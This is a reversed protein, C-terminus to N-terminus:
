KKLIAEAVCLDYNNDIDISREIPMKYFSLSKDDIFRMTKRFNTTNCIYIAGNITFYKDEYSQRPLINSKYQKLYKWKGKKQIELCKYPHDKMKNVSILSLTESRYFKDIANDIDLSLRLPSTPQLLIFDDFKKINKEVWDLCHMITDAMSTSDKALEKPRKYNSDLGLRSAEKSIEPDETSVIIQSIKKSGKAADVTHQILTKGFIKQLNKKIIGKSGGRAPIIALM